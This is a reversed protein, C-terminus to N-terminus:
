ILPLMGITSQKTTQATGSDKFFACSSSDKSRLTGRIPRTKLNVRELSETEEKEEGLQVEDCVWTQLHPVQNWDIDACNRLNTSHVVLHSSREDRPPDHQWLVDLFDHHLRANRALVWTAPLVDSMSLVQLCVDTWVDNLGLINLRHVGLRGQISRPRVAWWDAQCIRRLPVGFSSCEICDVGNADQHLVQSQQKLSFGKKSHWVPHWCPDGGSTQISPQRAKLLWARGKPDAIGGISEWESWPRHM